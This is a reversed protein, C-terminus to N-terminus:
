ECKKRADSGKYDFVMASDDRFIVGIGMGMPAGGDNKLDGDMFEILICRSGIYTLKQDKGVDNVSIAGGKPSNVDVFEMELGRFKLSCDRGGNGPHSECKVLKKLQSVLDAGAKAKADQAYASGYLAYALLCCAFIKKM